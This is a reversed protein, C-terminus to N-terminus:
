GHRNDKFLISNAATQPRRHPQAGWLTTPPPDVGDTDPVPIVDDCPLSARTAHAHIGVDTAAQYICISRPRGDNKALVHSRLWLSDDPMSEAAQTLCAGAPDLERADARGSNPVIVYTHM